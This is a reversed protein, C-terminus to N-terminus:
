GGDRGAFRAEEGYLNHSASNRELVTQEPTPNNSNRGQLHGLYGALAILVTVIAGMVRQDQVLVTLWHPHNTPTITPTNVPVPVMKALTEKVERVDGHIEDLRTAHAKQAERAAKRGNTMGTEIAAIRIAMQTLLESLKFLIQVITETLNNM